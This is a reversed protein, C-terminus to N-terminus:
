WTTSIDFKHQLSAYFVKRCTEPKGSVRFGTSIRFRNPHKASAMMGVCWSTTSHRMLIISWMRLQSLQPIMVDSM